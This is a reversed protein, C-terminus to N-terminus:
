QYKIELNNIWYQDSINNQNLYNSFNQQGMAKDNYITVTTKDTSKDYLIGFDVGDYYPLKLKFSAVAASQDSTLYIIDLSSIQTDTLGLSKLWTNVSAKAINQNPNKLTVIFYFHGSPNTKYGGLIISFDSNSFPIKNSLFVDPRSDRTTTEEQKISAADPSTGSPISSSTTFSFTYLGLGQYSLNISYLTSKNFQKAPTVFLTTGVLNMGFQVLPNITLLLQKADPTQNFTLRLETNLPVNIDSNKPYSNIVFLSSPGISATPSAGPKNSTIQPKKVFSFIVIFFIILSLGIVLFLTKINM